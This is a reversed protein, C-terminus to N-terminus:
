KRKNIIASCEDRIKLKEIPIKCNNKGACNTRFWKKFPEVDEKNQLYNKAKSYKAVPKFASHVNIDFLCGKVFISDPKDLPDANL